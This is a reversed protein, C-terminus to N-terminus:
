WDPLNRKKSLSIIKIQRIPQVKPGHRGHDLKRASSPVSSKRALGLLHHTFPLSKQEPEDGGRVV